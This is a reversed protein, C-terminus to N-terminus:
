KWAERSYFSFQWSFSTISREKKKDVLFLTFPLSEIISLDSWTGTFYSSQSWYSLISRASPAPLMRLVSLLMLPIIFTLNPKDILYLRVYKGWRELRELRSRVFNTYIELLTRSVFAHLIERAAWPLAELKCSLDYFIWTVWKIDCLVIRRNNTSM